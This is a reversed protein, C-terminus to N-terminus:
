YGYIIKWCPGGSAMNKCLGVVLFTISNKFFQLDWYPIGFCILDSRPVASVLSSNIDNQPFKWIFWTVQGTRSWLPIPLISRNIRVMISRRRVFLFMTSFFSLDPNDSIKYANLIPSFASPFDGNSFNYPRFGFVTFFLMTSLIIPTESTSGPRFNEVDSKSSSTSEAIIAFSLVRPDLTSLWNLFLAPFITLSVAWVMVNRGFSPFFSITYEFCSTAFVFGCFFLVVEFGFSSCAPGDVLHFSVSSDDSSSVYATDSFVLSSSDVEVGVSVVKVSFTSSVASDSSSLSDLGSVLSVSPSSIAIGWSICNWWSIAFGATFLTRPFPFFFATFAEIEHGGVALFDGFVTLLVSRFRCLLSFRHLLYFCSLWLVRLWFYRFCFFWSVNCEYKVM